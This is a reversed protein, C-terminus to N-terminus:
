RSRRRRSRRGCRSRGSPRRPARGPQSDAAPAARRSPRSSRVPTRGPRNLSVNAALRAAVISGASTGVFYECRRLDFGTADEIGALVGMMWREGIVGGGGLVLVDPRSIVASLNPPAPAYTIAYTQISPDAPLLAARPSPGRAARGRRATQHSRASATAPRALPSRASAAPRTASRSRVRAEATAATAARRPRRPSRRAPTRAGGRVSARGRDDSRSGSAAAEPGAHRATAARIPRRHPSRRDRLDGSARAPFGPSRAPRTQSPRVPSRHRRGVLEGGAVADREVGVQRVVKLVGSFVLGHQERDHAGSQSPASEIAFVSNSLIQSACSTAGPRSYM